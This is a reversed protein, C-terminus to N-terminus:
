QIDSTSVCSCRAIGVRASRKQMNIHTQQCAIGLEVQWFISTSGSWGRPERSGIPTSIMLPELSAVDHLAGYGAPQFIGCSETHAAGHMTPFTPVLGLRRQEHERRYGNPQDPTSAQLGRRVVMWDGKRLQSMALVPLNETHLAHGGLRSCIFPHTLSQRRWAVV